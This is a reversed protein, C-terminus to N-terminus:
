DSAIKKFYMSKASEDCRSFYRPKYDAFGKSGVGSHDKGPSNHHLQYYDFRIAPENSELCTQATYLWCSVIRVVVGTALIAKINIALM